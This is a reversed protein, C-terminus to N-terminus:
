DKNIELTYKRENNHPLLLFNKINVYDKNFRIVFRYEKEDDKFKWIKKYRKDDRYDAKNGLIAKIEEYSDSWEIGFPPSIFDSSQVAIANLYFDVNGYAGEKQKQTERDEDFYVEFREKGSPDEMIISVGDYSEDKVPRKLGLEKLLELVRKDHSPLSLAEILRNGDIMNIKM